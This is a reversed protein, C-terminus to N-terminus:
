YDHLYQNTIIIRCLKILIIKFAAILNLILRPGRSDPAYCANWLLDTVPTGSGHSEKISTQLSEKQGEESLKQQGPRGQQRRMRRGSAGQLHWDKTDTQGGDSSHFSDAATQEQKCEAPTM